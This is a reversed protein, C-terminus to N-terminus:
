PEILLTDLTRVFVFAFFDDIDYKGHTDVLKEGQEEGIGCKINIKKLVNSFSETFMQCIAAIDDEESM